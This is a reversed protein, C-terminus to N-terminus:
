TSVEALYRQLAADNLGAGYAYQVLDIDAVANMELVMPGFRSLAIDWSQWRLAPLARAGEIGVELLKPWDPLTIGSLRAGTDPHVLTEFQGEGVGGVVREVVGKDLTVYALLNGSAGHHFNDTMNHGTPIKWVAHLTRPGDECLLVVLRISSPRDGCVDLLQPHPALHEQILVGFRNVSLRTGSDELYNELDIRRGDGLMLRKSDRDFAVVGIAGVGHKGRVPKLFLPYSDVASLFRAFADPDRLCEVNGFPRGRPHYIALVKPYPLGLSDLLSYFLVKDDAIGQWNRQNLRRYLSAMQRRGVFQRKASAPFRRDDYLRYNYYEGVGIKGSGLRLAAIGLLQSLYPKGTRRRALRAREWWTRLWSTGPVLGATM